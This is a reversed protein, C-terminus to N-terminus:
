HAHSPTRSKFLCKGQESDRIKCSLMLVGLVKQLVNVLVRTSIMEARETGQKRVLRLGIHPIMNLRLMKGVHKDVRALSTSLGARRVLGQELMLRQEVLM